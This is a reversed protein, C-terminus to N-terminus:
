GAEELVLQRPPFTPKVNPVLEFVDIPFDVADSGSAVISRYIHEFRDLLEGSWGMMDLSSSVARAERETAGVYLVDRDDNVIEANEDLQTLVSQNGLFGAILVVLGGGAFGRNADPGWNIDWLDDRIARIVDEWSGFEGRSEVAHVLRCGSFKSGAFGWLVNSFRSPDLVCLKHTSRVFFKGDIEKTDAAVVIKGDSTKGACLM